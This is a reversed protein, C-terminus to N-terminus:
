VRVVVSPSSIFHLNPLIITIVASINKPAAKRFQADSSPGVAGDRTDVGNGIVVKFECFTLGGAVGEAGTVGSSTVPLM